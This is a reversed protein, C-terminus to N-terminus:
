TDITLALGKFNVSEQAVGKLPMKLSYGSFKAHAVLIKPSADGEPFLAIWFEAGVAQNPLELFKAGSASFDGTTLERSISGSISVHGEKLEQPDRDGHIYIEELDGAFDISLDTTPSADTYAVTDATKVAVKAQSGHYTGM